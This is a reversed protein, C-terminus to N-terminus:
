RTGAAAPGAGTPGVGPSGTVVPQTPRTRRWWDLWLRSDSALRVDTLEMLGGILERARESRTELSAVLPEVLPALPDGVCRERLMAFGGQAAMTLLGDGESLARALLMAAQPARARPLFEMAVLVHPAAGLQIAQELGKLADAALPEHGEPLVAVRGRRVRMPVSEPLGGVTLHSPRLLGELEIVRVGAIPPGVDAAPIRVPLEKVQGPALRLPPDGPRQLYVTTAWRRELLTATVDRDRRLVELTIANPSSTLGGPLARGAADRDNGPAIFVVDEQGVNRLRVRFELETGFPVVDKVPRADLRLVEEEARRGRVELRMARFRSAWGAPAGGVLAADIVALAQADEGADLLGRAVELKDGWGAEDPGMERRERLEPDETAAAGGRDLVIPEFSPAVPGGEPAEIPRGWLDTKVDKPDTERNAGLPAQCGAFGVGLALPVLALWPELAHFRLVGVGSPDPTPTM